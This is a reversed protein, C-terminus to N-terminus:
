IVRVAHLLLAHLYKIYTITFYSFSPKSTDRNFEMNGTNKPYWMTATPAAM